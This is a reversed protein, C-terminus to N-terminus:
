VGNWDISKVPIEIWSETVPIDEPRAETQKIFKLFGTLACIFSEFAHNNAIMLKLDQEYVFAFNHESLVKLIARRSDEGGVSHKHFRLHRKMVDLSRGIRWLALPVYAEVCNYQSVSDRLRKSLFHTRATLPALNSGLAHHMHFTEEIESSVYMEVCRQTYPSFNKKPKKNKNIKLNKDRMWNIHPENCVEYGPCKLECSICVPMNLPSDFIIYDVKSGYTSIIDIIKQDASHNEDIKIRDYVKTLFLKKYKPYFEIVSLCAKDQKGGSM